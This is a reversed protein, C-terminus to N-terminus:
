IKIKSEAAVKELVNKIIANVEDALHGAGCYELHDRVEVKMDAITARVVEESIYNM